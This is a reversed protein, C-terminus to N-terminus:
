VVRGVCVVNVERSYFDPHALFAAPGAPESLERWLALDATPLDLRLAGSAWSSLADRWLQHEVPRLPAWREIVTSRGWAEAYGAERLYTRLTPGRRAGSIRCGPKPKAKWMADGYNQMFGPPTPELRFGVGDVEKVAVLGGPRVVRRFEQLATM